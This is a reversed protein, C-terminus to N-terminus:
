DTSATESAQTREALLILGQASPGEWSVVLLSASPFALKESHKLHPFPFSLKPAVANLARAEIIVKTQM